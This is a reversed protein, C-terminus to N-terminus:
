INIKQRIKWYFSNQTCKARGTWKYEICLFMLFIVCEFIPSSFLNVPFNEMSHSSIGYPSPDLCCFYMYKSYIGHYLLNIKESQFGCLFSCEVYDCVCMFQQLTAGLLLGYWRMEPIKITCSTIYLRNRNTRDEVLIKVPVENKKEKTEM